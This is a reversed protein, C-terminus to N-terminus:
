KVFNGLIEGAIALMIGLVVLTSEVKRKKVQKDLWLYPIAILRLLLTIIWYLILLVISFLSHSDLPIKIYWGAGAVALPIEIPPALSYAILFCLIIKLVINLYIHSIFLQIEILLETVPKPLIIGLSVYVLFLFLLVFFIIKFIMLGFYFFFNIFKEGFLNKEPEKLRLQLEEEIKSLRESGIISAGCLIIGFVKIVTLIAM